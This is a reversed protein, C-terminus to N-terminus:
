KGTRARNRQALQNIWEYKGQEIRAYVKGFWEPKSANRVGADTQNTDTAQTKQEAAGHAPQKGGLGFMEEGEVIHIDVLVRLIRKEQDM